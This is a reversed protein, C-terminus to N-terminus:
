SLGMYTTCTSDVQVSVMLWHIVLFDPMSLWHAASSASWSVNRHTNAHLDCQLFVVTHARSSATYRVQLLDPHNCIKRLVDIGALANRDGALIAEVDKSALYARYLERQEPSLRCFLVQLSCLIADQLVPVKLDSILGTPERSHGASATGQYCWPYPHVLKTCSCCTHRLVQETKEPLEAQIDVKRRRLLYPSILDRLVVACKYATSM